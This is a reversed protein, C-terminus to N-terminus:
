GTSSRQHISCFTCPRWMHGPLKVLRTGRSHRASSIVSWTHTVRPIGPALPLMWKLM